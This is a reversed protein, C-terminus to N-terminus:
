FSQGALLDLMEWSSLEREPLWGAAPLQLRILLAEQIALSEITRDFKTKLAAHAKASEIQFALLRANFLDDASEAAGTTRDSAINGPLTASAFKQAQSIGL